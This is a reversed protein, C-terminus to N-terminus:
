FQPWESSTPTDHVKRAGPEEQASHTGPLNLPVVEVAAQSDQADPLVDADPAALAPSHM